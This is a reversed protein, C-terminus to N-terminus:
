QYGAAQLAFLHAYRGDLAVLADHTGSEIVRGAELVVIRDAMRVTPFRHSIVITTRGKALEKFREFVAHEAQADLAATPEDLILVDAEERMFARSLAIKQWQGGSLEVGDPFWRGLQTDLGAPMEAVVADGGGSSLAMQIRPEDELHDVNGLGVNEKLAFQYRNFDQFIVGIRRRLEEPHWNRVDQGDLLVRGETPAYLGVLLKILTTKGAGNEGVLALSQGRPIFLSVDRLAWADTQPYRFGVGEFRLGQAAKQSRVLGTDKSAPQGHRQPDALQLAHPQVDPTAAANLQNEFGSPTEIALFSFLNQMYLNHEYLGQLSTLMGQFAAQGQRFAILYLTMGGITLAGAITGAVVVVYCGYFAGTSLLSLAYAWVSRRIALSKDEKFFRMALARYRRLLLDTLGFLKVEKVYQDNALVYELYNLRRADPSRWNRMRFAQSSFRTEAVFAPVAALLIVGFMWPQYALLLGAYGSLMLGNRLIQFNETVLQLPRSSAERRARTLKDYFESNEFHHLELEGAKALIQLHISMGLRAGLLQRVLALGREVLALALALGIEAAVIRTVHEVAANRAAGPSAARALVVADIILKGVYAMLPSLAAACVTLAALALLGPKATAWVLRFTPVSQGFSGVLRQRLPPRSLPPRLPPPPV